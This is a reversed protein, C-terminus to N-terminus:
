GPAPAAGCPLGSRAPWARCRRPGPCRQRRRPRGPDHALPDAEPRRHPSSSSSASCGCRTGPSAWSAIGVLTSGLAGIGTWVGYATGLPLTRMAQSLLVVSGAMFALTAVSPWLRTFGESYKMAAAWAVEMVGAVVLYVWAM